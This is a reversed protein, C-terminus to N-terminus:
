LRHHFFDHDGDCVWKNCTQWNRCSWAQYIPAQYLQPLANLFSDLLIRLLCGKFFPQYGKFFHQYLKLNKSAQRQCIKSPGNVKNWFSEVLIFLVIDLHPYGCNNLNSFVVAKLSGCFDRPNSWFSMNMFILGMKSTKHM